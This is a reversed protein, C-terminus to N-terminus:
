VSTVRKIRLCLVALAAANLFVASLGDHSVLSAKETDDSATLSGPVAKRRM